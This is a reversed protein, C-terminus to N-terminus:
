ANFLAILKKTLEYFDCKETYTVLAQKRLSLKAEPLLENFSRIEAALKEPTIDKDLLKGNGNNVIESTGGVNTAYVPIGASFAEMISVPVGETTSVNLFLDVPNVVYFNLVEEPKVRGPLNVTINSPLHKSIDKIKQFMEGDGLHTWELRFDIHSLAQAILEVRKLPIINSSSVIRLIGAESPKAEGAKISGLRCIVSKFNIKPYKQKMYRDGTESVPLAIDLSKLLPTRFPLYGNRREEYLDFGHFRVLIKNYGLNTLFPIISSTGLGWYFYLITNENGPRKKLLENVTRNKFLKETMEIASLWELLWVKRSYVRKRLFEKFFYLRRPSFIVTKFQIWKGSVNLDILPEIIEIGDPINDLMEKKLPAYPIVTIDFHNKLFNLENRKWSFDHSYPYNYTFFILRKMQNAKSGM